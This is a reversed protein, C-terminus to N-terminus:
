FLCTRSLQAKSTKSVKGNLMTKKPKSIPNQPKVQFITIATDHAHKKGSLSNSDTNDFNDFVAITFSSANFHSPLLVNDDKSKLITYKAIDSRMTKM